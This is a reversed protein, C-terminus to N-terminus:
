RGARPRERRVEEIDAAVEFFSQYRRERDKALCQAVVRELSAPVEPVHQHLPAPTHNLIEDMLASLQKGQFPRAYAILEYAVVGYSFIDTRTDLEQDRLQEPSLYGLTGVAM